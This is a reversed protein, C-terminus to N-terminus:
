EPVVIESHSSSVSVSKRGGTEQLRSQHQVSLKSSTDGIGGENSGRPM